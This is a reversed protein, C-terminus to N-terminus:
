TQSTVLLQKLSWRLVEAFRRHKWLVSSVEHLVWRVRLAPLDARAEHAVTKVGAQNSSPRQPCASLWPSPCSVGRLTKKLEELCGM